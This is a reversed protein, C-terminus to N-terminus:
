FVAPSSLHQQTVSISKVLAYVAEGVRLDLDRCAARTIRATLRHRGLLLIIDAYTAGPHDSISEIVAPLQNRISLGTQATRALAVDRAHVLLRVRQGSSANILPVLLEADDVILHSLRMAEDHFAVRAELISVADGRRQLAPVDIRLVAQQTTDHASIRGDDLIILEDALVSIEDLSHSVYLVPLQFQQALQRFLDLFEAKQNVDIAALPEDLLLLQPRRLLARAIAVRHREGGSLSAVSRDLLNELRLKTLVQQFPMGEHGDLARKRAFELNGRVDTFSFLRAEQFVMGVPRKEAPVSIGRDSDLWCDDQWGIRGIVDGELGAIARLLTSKGAGNPGWLGTVGSGAITLDVALDFAGKQLSLACYLRDM